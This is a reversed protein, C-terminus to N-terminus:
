NLFGVEHRSHREGNAAVLCEDYRDLVRRCEDDPLPLVMRLLELAAAEVTEPHGQQPSPRPESTSRPNQRQQRRPLTVVKPM